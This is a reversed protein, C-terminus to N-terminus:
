DHVDVTQVAHTRERPAVILPAGYLMAAWGHEAWRLDIARGTQAIPAFREILRSLTAKPYGEMEIVGGGLVITAPSVMAVAMGVAMAQHRVFRDLEAALDVDHRAAHFVEAIAVGYRDAVHQLARGSAYIELQTPADPDQHAEVAGPVEGGPFPALGIELAWGAGRFPMGRDMYAAGIGTGFFVGLVHRADRAAGAQMEGTLALVADRELRVTCGVREGLESGLRRGNLARVNEAHLIRDNDSDIFGPVAVVVTRPQLGTEAAAQEVMTALADIPDRTSLVRTPVRKRYDLPQGAQAYGFKIHTGGIDIVLVPESDSRLGTVPALSM